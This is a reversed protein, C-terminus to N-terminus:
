PQYGQEDENRSGVSACCLRLTDVRVGGREGLLGGFPGEVGFDLAIRFIQKFFALFDEAVVGKAVLIEPAALEAEVFRDGTLFIAAHARAQGRALRQLRPQLHVEAGQGADQDFRDFAAGDVQVAHIRRQLQQAGVGDDADGAHEVLLGLAHRGDADLARETM